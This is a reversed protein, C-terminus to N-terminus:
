MKGSCLLIEYAHLSKVFVVNITFILVKEEVIKVETYL